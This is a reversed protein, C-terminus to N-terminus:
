SLEAKIAELEEKSPDGSLIQHLEIMRDRSIKGYVFSDMLRSKAWAVSAGRGGGGSTNEDLLQVLDPFTFEGGAKLVAKQVLPRLLYQKVSKIMYEKEAETLDSFGGIVFDEKDMLIEDKERVSFDRISVRM